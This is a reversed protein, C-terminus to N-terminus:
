TKLWKRDKRRSAKVWARQGRAIARVSADADSQYLLGYSFANETSQAAAIALEREVQRAIVSDQHDGLTSQVKKLRRAFRTAPRGFAPGVAEAAFRTRKAARRARHLAADQEPGGLTRQARDMRRDARRYSRRVAAPLVAAAPRGAARTLAPGEVSSDLQDLLEFYRQSRLAATLTEKAQASVHAFHGQIRANVPGLVLEAPLAEVSSRLHGFLVEADRAGGLETGLWKLEDAVPRVDQRWILKGFTRLTSRLKRVAIRMQHVADPQDGRVAPDLAKMTAIQEAAYATIVDGASSSASLAQRAPQGAPRDLTGVGMARAFKALQASRTLGGLLLCQDAERLLEGDGGTLEFEVEQWGRATPDGGESHARVDDIALEALSNGSKGLLLLRQRQTKIVAQPRVSKGRTHVLILEALEDPVQLDDGDRLPSHIERRTHPGVPTKLHWGADHGGVRRRLTVGAHILRLDDTDFYQAELDETAARRVRSISALTDLKPLALGPPLEYKIETENISTAM